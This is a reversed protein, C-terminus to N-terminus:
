RDFFELTARSIVEAGNELAPAQVDALELLQARPLAAAAARSPDLLDSATAIVLSDHRIMPYRTECDYNFAAAFGGTAWDNKLLEQRKGESYYPVDVQVLRQVEEPYNLAMEVAVLCGTQFGFLDVKGRTDRARIMDIMADAYTRISPASRPADSKGYGPYDPAIVIRGAALSPAISYFFSGDHPIPHLLFLDPAAPGVLAEDKPKWEFWHVGGFRSPSAGRILRLDSM